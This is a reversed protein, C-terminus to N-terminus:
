FLSIAGVIVFLLVLVVILGVASLGILMPTRNGAVPGQNPGKGQGSSAGSESSEAPPTDGPLTSGGADLGTTTAPDPDSRPQPNAM